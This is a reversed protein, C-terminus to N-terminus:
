YNTIIFILGRQDPFSDEAWSTFDSLHSVETGDNM